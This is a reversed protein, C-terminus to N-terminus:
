AGTVRGDGDLRHERGLVGQVEARRDGVSWGKEAFGALIRGRIRHSEEGPRLLAGLLLGSVSPDDQELLVEIASFRVSEDFDELLPAVAGATRADPHGRLADLLRLKKDPNFSERAVERALVDLIAGVVEVEDAINFYIRLPFGVSANEAVFRRIVEPARDRLEGELVQCVYEKENRDDAQKDATWDFRKLLGYVADPGGDKVLFDIAALRDEALTNKSNLKQLHKEKLKRDRDAANGFLLDKLGM